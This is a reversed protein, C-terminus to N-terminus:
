NFDWISEPDLVELGSVHAKQAASLKDFPTDWAAAREEATLKAM